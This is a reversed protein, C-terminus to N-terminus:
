VTEHLKLSLCLYSNAQQSNKCTSTKSACKAAVCMHGETPGWSILFVCVSVYPQTAQFRSLREAWRAQRPSLLAKTAFFTNPSHDTVVTFEVGDLYCRWLELAHIVALLEQEGASFNQEAPSLRKSDFAVPQGDRLLVAGLGVGCADCIVEFPENLDPLALVPANCLAHKIGDFATNCDANWEFSDSKKLLAQLAHVLVAWGM